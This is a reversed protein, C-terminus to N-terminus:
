TIKNYGKLMFMIEKAFFRINANYSNCAGIKQNLYYVKPNQNYNLSQAQIYKQYIEVVFFLREKWFFNILM